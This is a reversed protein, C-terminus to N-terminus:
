AASNEFPIRLGFGFREPRTAFGTIIVPGFCTPRNRLTPRISDEISRQRRRTRPTAAYGDPGLKVRTDAAWAWARQRHQKLVAMTFKDLAM